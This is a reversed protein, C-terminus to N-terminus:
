GYFTPTTAIKYQQRFREAQAKIRHYETRHKMYKKKYELFLRKSNKIEFFDLDEDIYRSRVEEAEREAEEARALMQELIKIPTYKQVEAGLKVRQRQIQEELDKVVPIQAEITETLEKIQPEYGLNRTAIDVSQEKLSALTKELDKIEKINELFATYKDKNTDLDQLEELSMHRLLREADPVSPMDTFQFESDSTKSSDRSPPAPAYSTDQGGVNTQSYSPPLGQRTRTRPVLQPPRQQFARVLDSVIKGADSSANWGNLETSNVVVGVDDCLSHDIQLHNETVSTPPILQIRPAVQPFTPPLSARFTVVVRPRGIAKSISKPLVLQLGIDFCDKM